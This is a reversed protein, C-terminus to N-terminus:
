TSGKEGQLDLVETEKDPSTPPSFDEDASNGAMVASIASMQMARGQAGATYDDPFKIDPDSDGSELDDKSTRKSEGGGAPSEPATDKGKGSDGKNVTQEDQSHGEDADQEEDVENEEDREDGDSDDGDDGDDDDDYGYEDDEDDNDEGDEGQQDLLMANIEDEMDSDIGLAAFDVVEGRAFAEKAQAIANDLKAKAGQRLRAAARDKADQKEQMEQKRLYLADKRRKKEYVFERSLERWPKRHDKRIAKQTETKRRGRGQIEKLIDEPTRGYMDKEYLDLNEGASLLATFCALSHGHM